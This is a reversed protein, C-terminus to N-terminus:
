SIYERIVKLLATKLDSEDARIMERKSRPFSIFVTYHNEEREGDLKIAAVNGEEKVKEMCAILDAISVDEQDLIERIERM